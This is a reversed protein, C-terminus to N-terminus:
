DRVDYVTFFFAAAAAADSPSLCRPTATSFFFIRRCLDCTLCYCTLCYELSTFRLFAADAADIAAIATLSVDCEYWVSVSAHM